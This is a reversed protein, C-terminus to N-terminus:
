LRPTFVLDHFAEEVAWAGQFYIVGRREGDQLKPRGILEDAHPYGPDLMEELMDRLIQVQRDDLLRVPGVFGTEHYAAVQSPTLRHKELDSPTSAKSYLDGIMHHRNALHGIHVDHKM